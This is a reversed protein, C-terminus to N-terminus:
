QCDELYYSLDTDAKVLLEAAAPSPNYASISGVLENLTLELTDFVEGSRADM